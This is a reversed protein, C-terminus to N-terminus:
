DADPVELVIGRSRKAERFVTACGRCTVPTGMPADEWPLYTDCHGCLTEFTLAGVGPSWLHVRGDYLMGGHGTSGTACRVPRFAKNTPM